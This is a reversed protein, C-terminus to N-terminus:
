TCAPAARTCTRCTPQLRPGARGRGDLGRRCPRRGLAEALAPLRAWDIATELTEIAYGAAWLADRLYPARLREHAWAPGLRPVGIAASRRSWAGSRARSPGCSGTRGPWASWCSAPRAAGPRALRPLARLLRRSRDSAILAITTATEIPRRSASWRCGWGRRQGADSRREIARDWDPLSYARVVDREPLPVTRLIAETVIGLRGESGLVIQRLDPGAASAPFPPLDLPGVPTELARRRLPGRDARLADLLRGVLADRDLWRRTSFEWSQPVHGLRRGPTAAAGAELAPGLRGPGSRRWAARGRRHRPDGALGGLDVVVVPRDSPVVTVGGVVSTGGGRPLLTWGDRRRRARVAGRRGRPRRAPGGCRAAAPLRGSRLAIHDSLDQGRAHRVRDEPDTSLGPEPALRSAPAAPSSTPWARTARRRARVSWTPRADRARTAASRRRSRRRRGLRGLAARGDDRCM